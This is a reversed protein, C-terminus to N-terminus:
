TKCFTNVCECVTGKEMGKAPQARTQKVDVNRSKGKVRQFQLQRAGLGSM